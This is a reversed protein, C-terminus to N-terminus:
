HAVIVDAAPLKNDAESIGKDYAIAADHLSARVLILDARRADFGYPWKKFIIRFGVIRFSGRDHQCETLGKWCLKRGNRGNRGEVM